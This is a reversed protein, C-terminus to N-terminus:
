GSVHSGLDWPAARRILEMEAIDGEAHALDLLRVLVEPEQAGFILHRGGVFFTPVGEVRMMHARADFDRVAGGGVEAQSDFVTELRSTPLGADLGIERLVGLRGTDRAESFYARFLSEVVTNGLGFEEAALILRHANVTNPTTTITDFRLNVGEQDGARAISAHVRRAREMGGFKRELYADRGMGEVPMDRNLLYPWWGVKVQLHPRRSLAIDLRRKGIYCWPCITDFMFDIRIDRATTM